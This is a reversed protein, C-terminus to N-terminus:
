TGESNPKSGRLGLHPGNETKPSNSVFRACELGNKAMKPGNRLRIASNSPLLPSKTVRGDLRVHLTAVTERQKEMKVPYSPQKPGFFATKPYLIRLKPLAGGSKAGRGLPAM